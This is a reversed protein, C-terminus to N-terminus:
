KQCNTCYYTARQHQKIMKIADGCQHCELDNRGYVQLSQKFYGPKGQDNVFDRLTTGGQQIAQTLVTQIAKILKDHSTKSLRCAKRNPNIGAMFLAESAYINGVGVINHSNMIFSKISCQRQRSLQYLYNGTMITDFPEPGLKSLLFHENPEHDFWLVCGFRRPDHYRLVVDGCDVDFHDHKGNDATSSVVRLSGSMGLHILLTGHSTHILIYKARREVNIIQQNKLLSPLEDPIPWRLKAQRIVVNVIIKNLIHPKIGRCTTEVEPLEPM